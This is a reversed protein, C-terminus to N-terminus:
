RISSRSSTMKKPVGASYSANSLSGFEGRFLLVQDRHLVRVDGDDNLTGNLGQRFTDLVFADGLAAQRTHAFIQRAGPYHQRGPGILVEISQLEVFQDDVLVGPGVDDAVLSVPLRPLFVGIPLNDRRQAAQPAYGRFVRHLKTGVIEQRTRAEFFQLLTILLTTFM